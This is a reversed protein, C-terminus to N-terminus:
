YQCPYYDPSILVQQATNRTEHTMLSEGRDPRSLSISRKSDRAQLKHARQLYEDVTFVNRMVLISEREPRWQHSTFLAWGDDPQLGRRQGGSLAFKPWLTGSGLAGWVPELERTIIHVTLVYWVCVHCGQGSNQLFIRLLFPGKIYLNCFSMKWQQLTLHSQSHRSVFWQGAHQSLCVGSVLSWVWVPCPKTLSVLSNEWQM